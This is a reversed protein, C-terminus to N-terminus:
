TPEGLCLHANYAAQVLQQARAHVAGDHVKWSERNAGTLHAYARDARGARMMASWIELHAACGQAYYDLYTM